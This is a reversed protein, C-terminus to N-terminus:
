KVKITSIMKRKAQGITEEGTTEQIISLIEYVYRENQRNLNEFINGYKGYVRLYEELVRRYSFDLLGCMMTENVKNMNKKFLVSAVMKKALLFSYTDVLKFAYSFIVNDVNPDTIVFHHDSVEKITDGLDLSGEILSSLSVNGLERLIRGDDYLMSYGSVEDITGVAVVDKPSMCNPHDMSFFEKMKDEDYSFGKRYIKYAVDSDQGRYIRSNAGKGGICEYKSDFNKPLIIM